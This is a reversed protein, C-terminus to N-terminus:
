LIMTEERVKVSCETATAMQRTRHSRCDSLYPPLVATQEPRKGARKLSSLSVRTFM